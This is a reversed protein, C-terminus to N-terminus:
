RHQETERFISGVFLTLLAAQIMFTACLVAAAANAGMDLTGVLVLGALCAVCSGVAIVAVLSSRGWGQLLSSFQSAVSAFVLGICVIQICPVADAYAPGLTTPILWPSLAAISAFLMSSLGVVMVVPLLLRRAGARGVRSAHPMLVMAFSTPVIRFPTVLRSAAGYMGVVMPAAGALALVAADFNRLQVAVSNVWFGGGIRAVEPGWSFGLAGEVYRHNRWVVLPLVAISGVLLGTAAFLSADGSVGTALLVFGLAIARRAVTALANEYVRGDALSLGLWSEVYNDVVGWAIIIPVFAKLGQTMQIPLWAIVILVLVVTTILLSMRLALRVVGEEYPPKVGPQDASAAARHAVITQILGLGVVAQLAVVVGYAAAFYGFSAPGSSRAILAFSIAQLAAGGVRGVGVIAAQGFVRSSESGTRKDAQTVGATM